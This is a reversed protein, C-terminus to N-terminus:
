IDDGRRVLLVWQEGRRVKSLVEHGEQDMTIPVNEIPDGDDVIVEIVEGPDMLEMEIIAKSSNHPCPIGSLDLREDPKPLDSM